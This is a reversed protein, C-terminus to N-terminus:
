PGWTLIKWVQHTHRLQWLSSKLIGLQPSIGLGPSGTDEKRHSSINCLPVITSYQPRPQCKQCNWSQWEIAIHDQVHYLVQNVKMGQTKYNDQHSQLRKAKLEKISCSGLRAEVQACDDQTQSWWVFNSPWVKCHGASWWSRGRGQEELKGM